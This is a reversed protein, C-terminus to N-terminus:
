IFYIVNYLIKVAHALEQELEQKAPKKILIENSTSFSKESRFLMTLWKFLKLPLIHFFEISKYITKESTKVKSRGGNTSVFHWGETTKFLRHDWTTDSKLLWCLWNRLMSYISKKLIWLSFRSKWMRRTKVSFSEFDSDCNCLKGEPIIWINFYKTKM